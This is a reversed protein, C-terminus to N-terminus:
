ALMGGIAGCGICLLLTRIATEQLRFDVGNELAGVIFICCFYILGALIGWLLKKKKFQKGSLFGALLCALSYIVVIGVGAVGDDPCFRFLFIAFCFLSIGTVIYAALLSKGLFM